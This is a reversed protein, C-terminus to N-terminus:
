QTQLIHPQNLQLWQDKETQQFSTHNILSYGNTRRHRNSPHTTSKVTVMSGKTDTVITPTPNSPTSLKNQKQKKLLFFDGTKIDGLTAHNRTNKYEKMKRKAEGDQRQLQTNDFHQEPFATHHKPGASDPIKTKPNRDFM